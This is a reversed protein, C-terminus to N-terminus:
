ADQAPAVTTTAAALAAAEAKQRAAEKQRLFATKTGEFKRLEKREARPLANLKAKLTRRSTRKVLRRAKPTLKKTNAM